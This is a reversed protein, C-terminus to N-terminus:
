GFFVRQSCFTNSGGSLWRLDLLSCTPQPQAQCLEANGRHMPM